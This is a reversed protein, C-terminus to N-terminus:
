TNVIYHRCRPHLPICPIYNKRSRGFNTKGIWLYKQEHELTTNNPPNKLLIFTRGELLQVCHRCAGALPPITVKAGDKSSAIFADSSAMALETIAVGRWDRHHDGTAKLLTQALRLVSWKDVIAQKLTDKIRERQRESVEKLKDGCREINQLLVRKEEETLPPIKIVKGEVKVPVTQQKAEKLSEPLSSIKVNSIDVKEKDLRTKVKSLVGAKTVAKEALNRWKPANRELIWDIVKLQNETWRKGINQVYNIVKQTSKGEKIRRKIKQLWSKQFNGEISIGLERMLYATTETTYRLLERTLEDEIDALYKNDNREWMNQEM